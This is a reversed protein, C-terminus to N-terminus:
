YPALLTILTLKHQKLKLSAEGWGTKNVCAIFVSYPVGYRVSVLNLRKDCNTFANAIAQWAVPATLASWKAPNQPFAKRLFLKPSSPGDVTATILTFVAIERLRRIVADSPRQQPNLGGVTVKIEPQPPSICRCTGPRLHDGSKLADLVDRKHLCCILYLSLIRAM